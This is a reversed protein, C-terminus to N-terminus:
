ARSGEKRAYVTEKCKLALNYLLRELSVRCLYIGGRGSWWRVSSAPLSSTQTAPVVNVRDSHLVLIHCSGNLHQGLISNATPHVKIEPTNYYGQFTDEENRATRLFRGMRLFFLVVVVCSVLKLFM